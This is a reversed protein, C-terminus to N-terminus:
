CSGHSIIAGGPAIDECHNDNLMYTCRLSSSRRTPQVLQENMTLKGGGHFNTELRHM